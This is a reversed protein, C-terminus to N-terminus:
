TLSQQSERQEVSCPFDKERRGSKEKLESQFQCSKKEM